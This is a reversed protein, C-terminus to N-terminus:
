EVVSGLLGVRWQGVGFGDKGKFGLCVAILVRAWDRLGAMWWWQWIWTQFNGLIM